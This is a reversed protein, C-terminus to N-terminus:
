IACPHPISIGAQEAAQLITYNEPVTVEIGNIKMTIRKIDEM